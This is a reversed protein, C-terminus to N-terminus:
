DIPQISVRQAARLSERHQDRLVDRGGRMTAYVLYVMRRCLRSVFPREHIEQWNQNYGTRNRQWDLIGQRDFLKQGDLM